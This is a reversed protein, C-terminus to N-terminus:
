MRTEDAPVRLGRMCSLSGGLRVPWVWLPVSETERLATKKRPRARVGCLVWARVRCARPPDTCVVVSIAYEARVRGLQAGKWPPDAGAPSRDWVSGTHGGRM